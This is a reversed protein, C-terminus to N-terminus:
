RAQSPAAVAAAPLAASVTVTESINAVSLQISVTTAAVGGDGPRRHAPHSRLRARLDGGCLIGPALGSAAFHGRGDTTTTVIAGTAENRVLVARTSSPRATLISSLARSPAGHRLRRRMCRRRRCRCCISGCPSLALGGFRRVLQFM